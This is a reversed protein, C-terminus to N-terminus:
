LIPKIMKEACKRVFFAGLIIVLNGDNYLASKQIQVIKIEDNIYSVANELNSIYCDVPEFLRFDSHVPHARLLCETFPRIWVCILSFMLAKRWQGIHPSYLHGTVCFITGNSSTMMPASLSKTGNIGCVKQHDLKFVWQTWGLLIPELTHSYM